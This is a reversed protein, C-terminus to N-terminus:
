GDSLSKRVAKRFDSLTAVTIGNVKKIIDGPKLTRLTRTYSGPLITAIVLVPEICYEPHYYRILDPSYEALEEIHNRTLEMVVMGGILEYDITEYGPFRERVAFADLARAKITFDKREGKRYIVLSITDGYRVRSLLD